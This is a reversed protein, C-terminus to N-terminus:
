EVRFCLPINCLEREENEAAGRAIDIDIDISPPRSSSGTRAASATPSTAPSSDTSSSAARRASTRPRSPSPNGSTSDTTWRGSRARRGTCCSTAWSSSRCRASRSTRPPSSRARTRSASRWRSRRTSGCCRAKSPTRRCASSCTRGTPRAPRPARRWRWSTTTSTRTSTARSSTATRAPSGASPGTCNAPRSSPPTSRWATEPCRRSAPTRSSSGASKTACSWADNDICKVTVTLDSKVQIMYNRSHRDGQGTLMDFWELRNTQRVIRGLVKGYQEDPLHRIEKPTLCGPQKEVRKLFDSCTEGPAKEMFTGYQGDLVGVTTKVMLDGLGFHEAAKATAVNLHAVQTEPRYDMSLNLPEIGKRGPVEPKFVYESGDKLKALYVTNAQGSGLKEVKEVRSPDLAPDVDADDMGRIRAEVLTTLPLDGDFLARASAATLFKEPPLPGELSEGIAVLHAVMAALVKANKAQGYVVNWQEITVNKYPDKGDLGSIEKKILAPQLPQLAELVAEMEAKLARTPNRAYQEALGALKHRLSAAMALMPARASLGPLYAPDGIVPAERISSFAALEVHKGLAKLVVERRIGALREELGRLVAAAADLLQRDPMVRSGNAGVAIGERGARALANATERIERTYAALEEATIEAPGRAALADLRDVLPRLSDHVLGLEATTGHMSLAQRPLLADLRRDLRADAAADKDKGAQEAADALEMALTFIETGRRDCQFALECLSDFADGAIEPKNVLEHLKEALEAQDDLAKKIATAVPDGEKWGFAGDKLALANGIERGTFAALAAFSARARDALTSLEQRTLDDLKAAGAAAELAAADVSATATKAARVLLSDLKAVLEGAPMRPAEPPPNGLPEPAVPPNGVPAVNAPGQADGVPPQVAVPNPINAHVPPLPM